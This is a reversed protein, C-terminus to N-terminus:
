CCSIKSPVSRDAAAVIASVATATSEVPPVDHRDSLVANAEAGISVTAGDGPESAVLAGRSSRGATMQLADAPTLRGILQHASHM